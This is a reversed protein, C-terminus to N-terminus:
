VEGEECYQLEARKNKLQLPTEMQKEQNKKVQKKKKFTNYNYERTKLKKWYTKFDTGKHQTEVEPYQLWVRKKYNVYKKLTKYYEEWTGPSNAQCRYSLNNNQSM